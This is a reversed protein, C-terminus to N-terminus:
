LYKTCKLLRQNNCKVDFFVPTVCHLSIVIKVSEITENCAKNNQRLILTTSVRHWGSYCTTFYIKATEDTDNSFNKLFKHATRTNADLCERCKTWINFHVFCKYRLLWITCTMNQAKNSYSAFVIKIKNQVFSPWASFKKIVGRILVLSIVLIGAIVVSWVWLLLRNSTLFIHFAYHIASSPIQGHELNWYLRMPQPQM